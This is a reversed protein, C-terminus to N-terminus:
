FGPHHANRFRRSSSRCARNLSISHPSRRASYSYHRAVTEADKDFWLTTSLKPPQTV